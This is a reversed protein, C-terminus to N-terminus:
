KLENHTKMNRAPKSQRFVCHVRVFLQFVPTQRDGGEGLGAALQEVCVKESAAGTSLSTGVESTCINVSINEHKRYNKHIGFWRM